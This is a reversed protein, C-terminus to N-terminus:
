IIISTSYLWPLFIFTTDSHGTSPLFLLIAILVTQIQIRAECNVKNHSNLWSQAKIEKNTFYLYCCYRSWLTIIFIFPNNYTFCYFAVQCRALIGYLNTIVLLIVLIKYTYKPLYHYVWVQGGPRCIILYPLSRRPCFSLEKIKKLIFIWGFSTHKFGVHNELFWFILHGTKSAM